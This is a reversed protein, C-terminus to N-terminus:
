LSKHNVHHLFYQSAMVGTMGTIWQMGVLIPATKKLLWFPMDAILRGLLVMLIGMLIAKVAPAEILLRWFSADKRYCYVYVTNGAFVVPIMFATIHGQMYAVLPLALTMVLCYKKETSDAALMLVTNVITGIILTMVMPPLPVILRMQQALIGVALLLAARTLSQSVIRASREDIQCPFLLIEGVKGGLDPKEKQKQFLIIHLNYKIM